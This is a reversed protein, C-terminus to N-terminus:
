TTNSGKWKKFHECRKEYCNKQIGLYLCDGSTCPNGGKCGCKCHHYACDACSDNYDAVYKMVM